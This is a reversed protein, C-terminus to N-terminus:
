YKNRERQRYYNEKIAKAADPQIIDANALKISTNLVKETLELDRNLAAISAPVLMMNGLFLRAGPGIDPHVFNTVGISEDKYVGEPIKVMQGDQLDWITENNFIGLKKANDLGDLLCERILIAEAGDRSIGNYEFAADLLTTSETGETNAEHILTLSKIFRGHAEEDNRPLTEEDFAILDALESASRKFATKESYDRFWFVLGAVVMLVFLIKWFNDSIM